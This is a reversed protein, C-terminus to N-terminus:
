LPVTIQRLISFVYWSLDVTRLTNNHYLTKLFDRELDEDRILRLRPISLLHRASSTAM